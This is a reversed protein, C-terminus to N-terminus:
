RQSQLPVPDQDHRWEAIVTGHFIKRSMFNHRQTFGPWSTWEFVNGDISDVTTGSFSHLLGVQHDVVDM